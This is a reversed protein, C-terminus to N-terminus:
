PQRGPAASDATQHTLAAPGATQFFAELLGRLPVYVREPATSEGVLAQEAPSFGELRADRLVDVLKGQFDYWDAAIRCLGAMPAPLGEAGTPWTVVPRGHCLAEVTKIKLGTGAAAPNVVVRCERYLPGLDDVPGMVLVGPVPVSVARSVRGAVVLEAGAVQEVVGPWAFRLFDRLGKRNLANDSGVYLIRAERPVPAAPAIDFDVGVTVVPRRPAMAALSVREEDQIAIVVDARELREAEEWPLLELDRVGFEGVKRRKDSYVDHTDVLKLASPGLLPFLRTMWIYEALVVCKGLAAQLHATVAAVSDHCFTRDVTLLDRGRGEGQDEGLGRALPALKRGNLTALAAPLDPLQYEISGDRRVLVANGFRAANALLDKRSVDDGPLPAVVLVLRYGARRLWSLM